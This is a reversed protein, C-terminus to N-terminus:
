VLCKYTGDPLFASIEVRNTTTTILQRQRATTDTVEEEMTKKIVRGKVVHCCGNEEDVIGDLCGSTLILGLQGINFPLLPRAKRDTIREAKQEEWFQQTSNSAKHALVLEEEDLESGRFRKVEVHQQPLTVPNLPQLIDPLEFFHLPLRRLLDFIETNGLLYKGGQVKKKTCVVYVMESAVDRRVQFNEYYKVLHSCIDNYFRYYPLAFLLVGNPKLYDVAKVLTDKEPRVYVNNQKKVTLSITPACIIVDFCNNTIVCGKLNGYIMRKFMTRQSARVNRETDIGYYNIKPVTDCLAQAVRNNRCYMEFIDNKDKHWVVAQRFAQLFGSSVSDKNECYPGWKDRFDRGYDYTSLSVHRDQAIWDDIATTVMKVASLMAAATEAAAIRSEVAPMTNQLSFLPSFGMGQFNRAEEVVMAINLFAGNIAARSDAVVTSGNDEIKRKELLSVTHELKDQQQVLKEYAEKLYFATTLM